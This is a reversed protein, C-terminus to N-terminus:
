LQESVGDPGWEAPWDGDAAGKATQKGEREDADGAETCGAGRSTAAALGGWRGPLSIGSRLFSLLGMWRPQCSTKWSHSGLSRTGFSRRAARSSFARLWYLSQGSCLKGMKTSAWWWAKAHSVSAEELCRSSCGWEECEWWTGSPQRSGPVWPLGGSCGWKGVEWLWGHWAAACLRLPLFLAPFSSTVCMHIWTTYPLCKRTYCHVFICIKFGAESETCQPHDALFNAAAVLLLKMSILSDKSQCPGEQSWWEKMKWLMDLQPRFFIQFVVTFRKKPLPSSSLPGIMEARGLCGVDQLDMEDVLDASCLRLLFFLVSKNRHVSERSPKWRGRTEFFKCNAESRSDILSLGKWFGLAPEGQDPKKNPPFPFAM